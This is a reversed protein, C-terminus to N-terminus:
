DYMIEETLKLAQPNGIHFLRGTHIFAKIRNLIGDDNKSSYWLPLVSFKKGPYKELVQPSIIQIGIYNYQVEEDSTKKLVIHSNQDLNWDGRYFNGFGICKYKECVLTLADLDDELWMKSMGKLIPKYEGEILTDCNFVFFPQYSFLPLANKLSGGTDLLEEEYIFQFKIQPFHTELTVDIFSKVQDYLYHGNIVISTIGAQNLKEVIIFLLSRGNLEILAKPLSRTLPHMRKGFGACLIMAQTIM